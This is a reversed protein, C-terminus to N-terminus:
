KGSISKILDQLAYYEPNLFATFIDNFNIGLLLIGLVEIAVLGCVVAVKGEETLEKLFYKRYKKRFIFLPVVILVLGIFAWFLNLIGDIYAQKVLLPYVKDAAVGLKAALNDIVENVKSIDLEIM